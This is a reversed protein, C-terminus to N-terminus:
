FYTIQYNSKEFNSEKDFVIHGVAKISNAKIRKKVYIGFEYKPDYYLAMNELQRIDISLLTYNGDNKPNSNHGYLQWGLLIKRYETVDGKILYVRPTYSHKENISKPVLGHKLISELNYDPTWHYLEDYTSIENKINKQHMPIFNILHYRKNEKHEVTWPGYMTSKYWGCNKMFELIDDVNLTVDIYVDVTQINNITEHHERVQWEEFGFQRILRQRVSKLSITHSNKEFLSCFDDFKLIM